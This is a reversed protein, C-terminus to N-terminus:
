GSDILDIVIDQDMAILKGLPWSYFQSRLPKSRESDDLDLVGSNQQSRGWFQSTFNFDSELEQFMKWILRFFQAVIFVFCFNGNPILCVL